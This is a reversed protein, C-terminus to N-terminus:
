RRTLVILNISYAFNSVSDNESRSRSPMMCRLRIVGAIEWFCKTRNGHSSLAAALALPRAFVFTRTWLLFDNNIGLNLWNMFGNMRLSRVVSQSHKLQVKM